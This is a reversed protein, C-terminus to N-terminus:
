KADSIKPAVGLKLSGLSGVQYQVVLPFDNKMYLEINPSINTCKTFLCLSKLDYFGQVIESTNNPKNFTLGNGIEGMVISAETFDGECQFILQKGISKIEVLKAFVSLDRCVKQFEDSPMTIISDFQAPPINFKNEDIDMLKLKYTAVKNKDGNQIQIGLKEEDSESEEYYLTLSDNDSMTRILKQFKIMDIGLIKKEKCIFNDFKEADLKLHILMTKSPDTSLIKVGTPNIELNAEPLVEKLLEVLTKVAKAQVTKLEITRKSM